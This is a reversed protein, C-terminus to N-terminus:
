TRCMPQRQSVSTRGVAAMPGGIPSNGPRFARLPGNSFVPVAAVRAVDYIWLILIWNLM